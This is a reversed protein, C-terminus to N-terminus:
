IALGGDVRLVSGTIYASERAALFAVGVAMERPTGFRGAPIQAEISARKEAPMGTIMQTEANPSIANVTIGFSATERAVTKTFGLIGAKAAAYNAQGINGRLGSYSTVNVIRGYGQARMVPIAARTFNFAGTLHVGLVTAWEADTMKWVVADRLVGANNVVVHLSGAWSIAAQVAQEAEDASAVDAAVTLLREGPRGWRDRLAADDRDLAVVRAGSDLFYAAIEAGIGHAAGTVLVVDGDFDFTLSM